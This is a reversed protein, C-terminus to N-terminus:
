KFRDFDVSGAISMSPVLHKYRSGYKGTIFRELINGAAVIDANGTYGCAQCLFVEGVRNMGDVHNCAPCRRSTNWSPVSRFSVRNGECGQELRTLWYAYNWSGISSRMNGSLRGKLKSSENLNSLQEVVILDTGQIKRRIVVGINYM